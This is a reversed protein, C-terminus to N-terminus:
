PANQPPTANTKDRPTVRSTEKRSARRSPRSPNPSYPMTLVVAPMIPPMAPRPMPSVTTLCMASNLSDLGSFALRIRASDEATVQALANRYATANTTKAGHIAALARDAGANAGSSRMLANVTANPTILLTCTYESVPHSAKRALVSTPTTQEKSCDPRTRAPAQVRPISPATAAM